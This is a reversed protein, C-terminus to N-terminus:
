KTETKLRGDIEKKAWDLAAAEAANQTKYGSRMMWGVPEELGLQTKTRIEVKITWNEPAHQRTEVEITHDKYSQTM